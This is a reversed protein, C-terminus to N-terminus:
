PEFRPQLVMSTFLWSTIMRRWFRGPSPGFPLLPCSLMCLGRHGINIPWLGSSELWMLPSAGAFVEIGMCTSCEVVISLCGVVVLSRPAERKGVMVIGFEKSVRTCACAVVCEVLTESSGRRGM